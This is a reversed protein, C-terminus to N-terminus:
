ESFAVHSETAPSAGSSVALGGGRGSLGFDRDVREGM